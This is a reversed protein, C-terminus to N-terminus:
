RRSALVALAAICATEVRLVRNGLRLPVFGQRRLLELEFDVWGGEPGIALVRPGPEAHTAELTAGAGPHLVFRPGEGVIQDLRDEVFPRFLPHVTLRPLRTDRAQELGAFIAPLLGDPALLPSQFYSKEVRHANVIAISRIGIAVAQEVLRRLVKPRPLALVLDVEQREPTAGDLEFALLVSGDDPTQDVRATGLPGDPRGVRLTRGPEARLVELVHRAREGVLRARDDGILEADRLLILNM